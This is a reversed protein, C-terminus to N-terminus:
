PTFLPWDPANFSFYEFLGSLILVVMIAFPTTWHPYEKKQDFIRYKLRNTLLVAGIFIAIDILLFHKGIIGTYAFFALPIFVLGVSQSLVFSILRSPQKEPSLFLEIELFILGPFFLLKLHEWVSENVPAVLGVLPNQNSWRYFFHMLTGLVLMFLDAVIEKKTM